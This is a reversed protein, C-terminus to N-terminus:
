ATSSISHLPTFLKIAYPKSLPVADFLEKCYVLEHHSFLALHTMRLPLSITIFPTIRDDSCDVRQL